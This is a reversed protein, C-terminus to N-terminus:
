GGLGGAKTSSFLLDRTIIKKAKPQIYLTVFSATAKSYGVRTGSRSVTLSFHPTQYSNVHSSILPAVKGDGRREVTFKQVM